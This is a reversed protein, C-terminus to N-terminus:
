IVGNSPSVADVGSLRILRERGKPTLKGPQLELEEDLPFFGRGANQAYAM